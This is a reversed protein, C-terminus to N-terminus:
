VTIQTCYAAILSGDSGTTSPKFAFGAPCCATDDNTCSIDTAGPASGKRTSYNSVSLINLPPLKLSKKGYNYQDFDIEDRMSLDYSYYVIVVTSIAITISILLTFVFSPIPLLQSSSVYWLILVIVCAVIIIKMIESQAHYKKVYYNNVEALRKKKTAESKVNEYRNALIPLENNIIDTALNADAILQQAAIISDSFFTNANGAQTYLASRDSSMDSMSPVKAIVSDLMTKETTANSFTPTSSSTFSGANLGTNLVVLRANIIAIQELSLTERSNLNSISGIIDTNLASINTPNISPM